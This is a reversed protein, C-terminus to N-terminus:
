SFDDLLKILTEYRQNWDNSRAFEVLSSRNIDATLVMEILDIFEEKTEYILAPSSMMEIETWKAAVVPLGCAFYQYLKLPSVYEVLEPYNKVDYPIIGIDSSKLYKPLENFSKSGLLHINSLKKLKSVADNKNGILVFSIQPLKTAAYNILQFDFRLEMEGIYIVRPHPISDLESPSENPSGHFHGFHVGNPLYYSQKANFNRIRAMLSKATCAVIDVAEILEREFYSSNKSYDSYGSYNDPIRLVARKYKITDLLFSQKINDFYILDVDFFGAKSLKSTLNPFTFHQWNKFVFKSRFLPKNQIPLFTLPVYTWLQDHLYYMGGTKYLSFRKAIDNRNKSFLHLPSIPDSIFAIDWGDKVFEKALAHTGVKYISEWYNTSVFIAKKNM